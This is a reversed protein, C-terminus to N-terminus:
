IELFYPKRKNGTQFRSLKLFVPILRVSVDAVSKPKGCRKATHSITKCNALISVAMQRRQRGSSRNMCILIHFCEAAYLGQLSKPRSNNASITNPCDLAEFQYTCEVGRRKTEGFLTFIASCPHVRQTDSKNQTQFRSLKLFVLILCISANVWSHWPHITDQAYQIQEPNRTKTNYQFTTNKAGVPTFENVRQM